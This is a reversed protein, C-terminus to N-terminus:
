DEQVEVSQAQQQPHHKHLHHQAISGPALAQLTADRHATDSIYEDCNPPQLVAADQM